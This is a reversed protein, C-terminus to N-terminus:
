HSNRRNDVNERWRTADKVFRVYIMKILKYAVVAYILIVLGYCVKDSM